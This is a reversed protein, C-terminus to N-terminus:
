MCAYRSLMRIPHMGGVQWDYINQQGVSSTLVIPPWVELSCSQVPRWHHGGSILLPPIPGIDPIQLLGWIQYQHTVWTGHGSPYHDCPTGVSCFSLCVGTLVNGERFKMQPCYKIALLVRWPSHLKELCIYASVIM